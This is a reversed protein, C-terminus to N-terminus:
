LSPAEGRLWDAFSPEGTAAAGLEAQTLWGALRRDDADDGAVSPVSGRCWLWLDALRYSAPDRAPLLRRDAGSESLVGCAVLLQVARNLRENDAAMMREIDAFALPPQGSTFRRVVLMMLRLPLYEAERSAPPRVDIAGVLHRPHQVYFALRCGFLVIVWSVYLWILLIILIAFSSYIASYSSAGSVFKAFGISASEWAIGAFLGGAAAAGLKVRTNPIFSYIFTLAAIILVYPAVKTVLLITTGFPEYLALTTVVTSSRVSATLALASFVLVPGILLVSLYEGFRQTFGREQKIKWIYNFSAEIKSIMSVSTYLLLAIGISGLVGVKINDVFGIINASIVAAQDGLPSLARNLIPELQNHVGFGKLVSFALALLPVLSLLTTYVLSMARLNIEGELLDRLLALAYRGPTLLRRGWTSKPERVWLLDHARQYPPPLMMPRNDPDLAISDMRAPEGASAAIIGGREV